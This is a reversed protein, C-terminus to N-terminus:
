DTLVPVRLKQGAALGTSELANLREIENMVGRVDGDTAIDSAIGWLTDGPAVQVIETPAPQGAEGTGVAGGALVFAATLAVLLSLLFVTLRGRRTALVPTVVAGAPSVEALWTRAGASALDRDTREPVATEAGRPLLDLNQWTAGEDDSWWQWAGARSMARARPDPSVVAGAVEKRAVAFRNGDIEVDLRHLLGLLHQPDIRDM